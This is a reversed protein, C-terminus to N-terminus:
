AIADNFFNPDLSIIKQILKFSKIISYGTLFLFFVRGFFGDLLLFMGFSFTSEIGFGEARILLSLCKTNTDSM